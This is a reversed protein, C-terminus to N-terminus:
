KHLLRYLKDQIKIVLSKKKTIDAIPYIIFINMASILSSPFKQISVFKFSYKLFQIKDYLLISNFRRTYRVRTRYGSTFMSSYKFFLDIYMWNINYLYEKNSISKSLSNSLIRYKILTEDIYKVKYNNYILKMYLQHDEWQYQEDWGNLKKVINTKLLITPTPAFVGWGILKKYDTEKSLDINYKYRISKKNANTKILESKENIFVTNGCVLSYNNDLSEFVDVQKEIKFSVMVDDCSIPQFYKGKCKTLGLNCNEVVTKPNENQIFIPSVNFENEDIWSRIIKECADKVNNIIILQINLYTQNKFSNLSEIVYPAQNHCIAIINVLPTSLSEKDM